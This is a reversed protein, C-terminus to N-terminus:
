MLISDEKKQLQKNQQKKYIIKLNIFGYLDIIFNMVFNIVVPLFALGYKALSLSWLVILVLDNCVYALSYYNSRRIMFYGAMASTIFSITSVILESTNLLKLLFYFGVTILPTLSWFIIWEKKKLKNFKVENSKDSRNKLWAFSSYIDIPLTMAIYIIAEGFYNQTFSLIIYIIDYVVNLIPAFYLGKALSIIAFCGVFSCAFSLYNKETSLFLSVIIVTIHCVMFVIEYPKFLRKKKKNDTANDQKDLHEKIDNQENDM